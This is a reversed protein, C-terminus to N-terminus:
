TGSFDFTGQGPAPIAGRARTREVRRSLHHAPETELATRNLIWPGDALPHDAQIEGREIALRLTRPSVHLRRAATKLTMWGEAEAHEPCHNPIRQYTRLSTVREQTWRNGRGTRLGNRNLLAAIHQDRCIRALSRVADVVTLATVGAHQGRRRRPVRLETHVGGQWHVVLVVEAVEEDVDAVVEHILARVLRKKLRVDTASHHWVAELDKALNGLQACSPPPASATRGRAEDIRQELAQVRELAANWRRELEDTVLRNAPDANEYQKGARESAYRAAQLERELAVVVDDQGQLQQAEARLSAELAAPQLVRLLEHGLADDVPIGAFNICTPDAYDLMGRKCVYRLARCQPPGSYKVVIKRGCRRCRLLGALLAAGRKAAGPKAGYFRQANSRLVEQVHEFQEWTVYGEHHNPILALWRERQRRRHKKVPVGRDYWTSSETRGFAYAGAYIPNTLIRNLMAFTPRRWVTEWGGLGYRRVPLDLGQELFWLFAQRSAGLELCKAFVLRLAGQVRQDPDMELCGDSTKLYGVPVMALFEGRRAKANRAELARQRLLDLEYENLSGKLGLLLRDNSLRPDYVTEQDILVTDVMRCVEVLHQWERSNRAFRSVERAAVAGVHGLCVEAVMREFGSRAATGAASRGLDEDIVEIEAWGLARLREEMGYQLRQSEQNQAVQMATSQRIYLVAKRALHQPKLKESM